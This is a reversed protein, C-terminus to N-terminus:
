PMTGLGFIHTSWNRRHFHQQKGVMTKEDVVTSPLKPTCRKVYRETQLEAVEIQASNMRQVVEHMEQDADALAKELEKVRNELCDTRTAESITMGNGSTTRSM